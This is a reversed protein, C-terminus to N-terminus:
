DLFPKGCRCNTEASEPEKKESKLPINNTNGLKEDLPYYANEYLKWDAVSYINTINDAITFLNSSMQWVGNELLNSSLVWFNTWIHEYDLKYDGIDASQFKPIPIWRAVAGDYGKANIILSYHGGKQLGKITFFGNADATTRIKKSHVRIKAYPIHKGHKDTIRGTMVGNWGGWGEWEIFNYDKPNQIESRESYVLMAIFCLCSFLVLTIKKTKM